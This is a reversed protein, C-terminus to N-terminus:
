RIFRGEKFSELKLPSLNLLLQSLKPSNSSTSHIIIQSHIRPLLASWQVESLPHLVIITPEPIGEMNEEMLVNLTVNGLMLNVDEEGWDGGDILLAMQSQEPHSLWTKVVKELDQYLQDESQSWDPCFMFNISSLGALLNQFERTVLDSFILAKECVSPHYTLDTLPQELNLLFAEEQKKLEIVVIANACPYPYNYEVNELLKIEEERWIERPNSLPLEMDLIRLFKTQIAVPPIQYNQTLLQLYEQSFQIYWEGDILKGFPVTILAKGGPSLLDYIKAIAKLPAERDRQSLGTEGYSQSSPEIGQGIHEVTSISLIGDYKESSPLDMLDVNDVGSAREFKDIIRRSKLGLYDSLANEYYSLTNGIELLKDKKPLHLLFDFAIPIEVAREGVNNYPVRNYPLSKEQYHFTLPWDRTLHENLPEILSENKTLIGPSQEFSEPLYERLRKVLAFSDLDNKLDPINALNELIIQAFNYDPNQGYNITLDQLIELSYDPFDMMDALCALKLLRQPTSKEPYLEHNLLDRFYFANTWILVGPHAVSFVPIDRRQDRQRKGFDFLSFGNKRLYFDVDSFLPQGSYVENFEVETMLGLISELTQSTGKLVNLEAGQVDLHLFDIEQLNERQCFRDLTTTKLPITSDLKILPSDGSFRRMYEKSPPYLSSCGPYETVYLTQEKEEDSLALPIHKETWNIGRKQLDENAQECAKEDADFGYITLNPAFIQWGQHGYDDQEVIKRSGVLVITIHVNELYGSQKLSPLFLM